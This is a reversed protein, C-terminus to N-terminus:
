TRLILEVYKEEKLINMLVDKIPPNSVGNQEACKKISKNTTVLFFNEKKAFYICAFSMIDIRNHAIEEKVAFKFFDRELSFIKVIGEDVLKRLKEQIFYDYSKSELAMETVYISSMSDKLLGHDALNLLLKINSFVYM